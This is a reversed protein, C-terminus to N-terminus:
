RANKVKGKLQAKLVKEKPKNYENAKEIAKALRNVAKILLVNDQDGM